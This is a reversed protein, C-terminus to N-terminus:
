RFNEILMLDADDGVRQGYLITRGDLSAAFSSPLQQYQFKALKGIDRVRGTATDLARVLPNPDRTPSASCPLYYIGAHTVSFATGVVCPILVQPAGGALPQAMVPSDDPKSIYFLTKGDFSESAIYGGGRTVREKLRDSVRVRWINRDGPQSWSYYIWQGDRSWTPSIQDGADNTIQRPTGGESDVTWIRPHEGASSFAIRRGDPSWSPDGKFRDPGHTLQAPSSGDANAVWVEMADGSRLSCFAIREGDPSFQPVGDFLPSQAVPQVPRGPEFRYIDDDHAQRTFALRDGTASAAPWFANPGAQELREPASAGDVAVRWLYELQNEAANFILVRGEGAWTLTSMGGPFPPGPLPRPSGVPALSSNLDVVVVQCQSDPGPGPCSVYALRRGEPAFAPSFDRGSTRPQTLVRTEGGEVPVLYIGNAPPAGPHDRVDARGAALYRGDPSWTPPLYVPFDSIQRDSGGLSSVVRLRPSPPGFRVYAIQRGDPSWAPALDIAPGSTLQRLDSSGVLKVYIDWNGEWWPRAAVAHDEGNWGFAVQRGDPSFATAYESGSLATLPVVRMAPATPAPPRLQWVGAAVLLAVGGIGAVAFATGRRGATRRPPEERVSDAAESPLNAPVSQRVSAAPEVYAGNVRVPAILRYGSKPITEIVRPQRSDDDFLRRLESIARTLVDDSVATDPWASQLLRDKLVVHGPRAALCVLVQMVKPELRVAGHPGTVCNLSPEVHYDEGVRFADQDQLTRIM